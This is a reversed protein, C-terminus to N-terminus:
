EKKIGLKPLNLHYPVKIEDELGLARINCKTLITNFLIVKFNDPLKKDKWKKLIEKSEEDEVKIIVKGSLNIKAIETYEVKYNFTIELIDGELKSKKEKVSQVNELNINSEIKYEKLIFGIKEANIKTFQFDILNM